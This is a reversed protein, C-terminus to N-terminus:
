QDDEFIKKIIKLANKDKGNNSAVRIKRVLHDSLKSYVKNMKISLDSKKGGVKSVLSGNLEVKYNNEILNKIKSM